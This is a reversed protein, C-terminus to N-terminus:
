PVILIKRKEVTTAMRLAQPQYTIFAMYMGPTVQKERSNKLDWVFQSATGTQAFKKSLVLLGGSSYISLSVLPEGGFTVTSSPTGLRVPVPFIVLSEPLTPPPPLIPVNLSVTANGDAWLAHGNSVLALAESYDGWNGIILTATGQSSVIAPVITDMFANGTRRFLFNLGWNADFLNASAIFYFTASDDDGPMKKFDFTKFGFAPVQKTIVHGTDAPYNWPNADAIPSEFLPADAIFYGPKARNGTFYSEAHFGGLIEPWTRGLTQATSSLNGYFTKAVSYNNFEMTRIFDIGPTAPARHYLYMAMLSNQYPVLNGRNDLIPSFPDGFYDTIYQFYDNVSDYGLDEMLTATGELWGITFDDLDAGGGVSWAMAYQVGHFHEHAITIRVPKEPHTSYDTGWEPGWNNRLNIISRFGKAGVPSTGPNTIGYLGYELTDVVVKYNASHHAGDQWGLPAVFGFREIEMSHASDCAWAVEDIYDPIGNPGATKTRWDASDYGYTDTPDVSGGRSHSTTYYVEIGYGPSTDASMYTPIATAYQYLSLFQESLSAAYAAILRMDIESPVAHPALAHGRNEPVRSEFYPTLRAEFASIDSSTGRHGLLREQLANVGTISANKAQAPATLAALALLGGAFLRNAMRSIM